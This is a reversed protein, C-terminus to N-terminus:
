LHFVVGTWLIVLDAHVSCVALRLFHHSVSSIYCFFFFSWQLLSLILASPRNIIAARGEVLVFVVSFLLLCLLDVIVGFGFCFKEYIPFWFLGLFPSIFVFEMKLYWILIWVLLFLPFCIWRRCIRMGLVLGFYWIVIIWILLFGVIVWDRKSLMIACKTSVAEYLIIICGHGMLYNTRYVWSGDIWCTCILNFFFFM